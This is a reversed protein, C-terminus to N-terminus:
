QELEFEIYTSNSFSDTFHIPVAQQLSDVKVKLLAVTEAELLVTYCGHAGLTTSGLSVSIQRKGVRTTVPTPV